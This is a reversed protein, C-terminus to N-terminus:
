RYNIYQLDLGFNKEKVRQMAEQLLDIKTSQVRIQDSQIRPQVKIKTDKIYKIIEKAKDSSIGQAVIITQRVTGGTAKEVPKYELSRISVRRKVLKSQVIDLIAKLRFESETHIDIKKEQKDWNITSKSDKFDYRTAIEKNSQDIANTVEQLDVESVIDFSHENNAM